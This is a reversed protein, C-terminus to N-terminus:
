VSVQCWAMTEPLHKVATSIEGLLSLVELWHLLHNTCFELLAASVSVSVSGSANLHVPWSVCAYHVAEPVYRAIRAPLDSIDANATGPIRIECIDQCLHKNLPSLCRYLLAEHASAPLVLYQAVRCHLPDGIFGYLSDHCARLTTKETVSDLPDDSTLLRADVFSQLPAVVEELSLQLLSALLAPTPHTNLLVVTGLLKSSHKTEEKEGDSCTFLLHTYLADLHTRDSSRCLQQLLNQYAAHAIVLQPRM